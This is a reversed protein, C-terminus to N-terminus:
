LLTELFFSSHTQIFCFCAKVEDIRNQTFFTVVITLPQLQFGGGRHFRYTGFASPAFSRPARIIQQTNLRAVHGARQWHTHQLGLLFGFIGEFSHLLGLIIGIAFAEIHLINKGGVAMAIAFVIFKGAQLAPRKRERIKGPM